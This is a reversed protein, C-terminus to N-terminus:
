GFGVTGAFCRILTIKSKIGELCELNHIIEKIQYEKTVHTVFALSVLGQEDPNPKQLMAEISVDYETFVSSVKALMGATDSVKLRLYYASQFQSSPLVDLSQQELMLPFLTNTRLISVIDSLIASATGQGGSGLGTFLSEGIHEGRVWIAKNISKVGAILHDNKVLAPHVRCEIANGSTFALGIPKISYGLQKSLDIDISQISEIGEFHIQSVEIDIQFIVRALLTLTYAADEGTIDIRPDSESLGLAQAKELVQETTINPGEHRESLILNSTANFIGAVSRIENALMGERLIKLVPLGGCVSAEFGIPVRRSASLEFLSLGHKALLAKNSTVVPKKNNLAIEVLEYSPSEKGICEVIVDISDDNVIAMADDTVEIGALDCNRHKNLNVVAVKSVVLPRKLLRALKNEERKILAVVASGVRGCGLIGIRIPGVVYLM